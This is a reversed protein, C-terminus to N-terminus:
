DLALFGTTLFGDKLPLEGLLERALRPLFDCDKVGCSLILGGEVSLACDESDPAIEMEGAALGPPVGMRLRPLNPDPLPVGQEPRPVGEFPFCM